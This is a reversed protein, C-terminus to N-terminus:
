DLWNEVRLGPVRAFQRTHATILTLDLALAHAAILFDVPGIPTGAETLLARIRGYLADAPSEFPVIDLSALIAEVQGALRVSKKKAAGYRLEGAALISVCLRDVGYTQLRRQIIFRPDRSCRRCWTTDLM